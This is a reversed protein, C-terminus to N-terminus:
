GRSLNTRLPGAAQPGTIGRMAAFARNLTDRDDSGAWTEVQFEQVAALMQSALLLCLVTPFRVPM